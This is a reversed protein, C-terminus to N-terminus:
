VVEVLSYCMVLISQCSLRFAVGSIGFRLKTDVYAHVSNQNTCISVYMQLRFHNPLEMFSLAAQSALLQEGVSSMVLM